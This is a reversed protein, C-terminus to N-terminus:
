LVCGIVSRAESSGIRSLPKGGILVDGSSPALLGVLLKALTSKGAGSAGTIAICEGESVCLDLNSLILTDDASYRFSLGKVHVAYSGPSEDDRCETQSPDSGIIESLREAHLRLMRWEAFLDVLRVTRDSFVAAYTLYAMLMGASIDGRLVLAAAAGVAAIRHLRAILSSAETVRSQLLQVEATSRASDATRTTYRALQVSERGNAKISHIGHLTELLLSERQAHITIAEEEASKLRAFTLWRVSAYVTSACLALGALLPAYTYIMALTLLSMLGDLVGEVFRYTVTRMIADISAFRSHIDGLSRRVFFVYPLKLLRECVNANWSTSLREGIWVLLLSRAAGIVSQIVASTAFAATLLLLLGTDLDPLVHDTVTQILLPAALALGELLLALFAVAFISAGASRLWPWLFNSRKRGSTTVTHFASGIQVAVAIGTFRRDFESPTVVTRGPGPDLIHAGRRSWGELVVFHNLDWHLICPMALECIQQPEIRYARPEMGIAQAIEMLRALSTGRSSPVFRGRLEGLTLSSGHHQAVMVLCAHACEHVESQLVQPM